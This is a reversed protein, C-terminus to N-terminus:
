EDGDMLECVFMLNSAAHAAHHLGSEPDIRQGQLLAICHRMAANLYRDSTGMRWNPIPGRDYRHKGHTLVRIIEILAAPPLLCPEPKGADDKRFVAAQSLPPTVEEWDGSQLEVTQSRETASGSAKSCPVTPSSPSCRNRTTDLANVGRDLAKDLANM